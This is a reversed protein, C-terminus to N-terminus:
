YDLAYGKRCPSREDAAVRLDVLAGLRGLQKMVERKDSVSYGLVDDMIRRIAMLDRLGNVRPERLEYRIVLVPPPLRRARRLRLWELLPQLYYFKTMPPMEITLHRLCPWPQPGKRNYSELALCDAIERIDNDLVVDTVHPFATFICHINKGPGDISQLVNKMTLKRVSPFKSIQNQSLFSFYGLLSSERRILSDSYLAFHLLNPAAITGLISKLYSYEETNMFISLTRLVPLTVSDLEDIQEAHVM